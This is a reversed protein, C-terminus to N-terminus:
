QWTRTGGELERISQRLSAEFEQLRRQHRVAGELAGYLSALCDPKVVVKHQWVNAESEAEVEQQSAERLPIRDRPYLSELHTVMVQVVPWVDEEPAGNDRASTMM